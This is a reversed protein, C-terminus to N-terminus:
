FEIIRPSSYERKLDSELSPAEVKPRDERLTLSPREVEVDVVDTAANIKEVFQLLKSFKEFFAKREEETFRLKAM